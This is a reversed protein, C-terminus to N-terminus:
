RCSYSAQNRSRNIRFLRVLEESKKKKRERQRQAEATAEREHRLREAERREANTLGDPGILEWSALLAAIRQKANQPSLKLFEGTERFGQLAVFLRQECEYANELRWSHFVEWEGPVGTTASLEVARTKPDRDTYGLKVLVPVYPNTLLYIYGEM